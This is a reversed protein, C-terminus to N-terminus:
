NNRKIELVLRVKGARKEESRVTVAFSRRLEDLLRDSYKEGTDVTYLESGDGAKRLDVIVAGYKRCIDGPTVEAAGAIKSNRGRSENRYEDRKAESINDSDYAAKERESSASLDGARNEYDQIDDAAEGSDKGAAGGPSEKEAPIYRGGTGKVREGTIGKGGQVSKGGVMDAGSRGDATGSDPFESVHVPIKHFMFRDPRYLAFIVSGIVVLAVAEVPFRLSNRFNYLMDIYRKLPHRREVELRRRLGDMFGEPAKVPKIDRVRKNWSVLFEFERRCKGCHEVHEALLRDKLPDLGNDIYANLLERADRCKM